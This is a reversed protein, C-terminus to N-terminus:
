REFPHEASGCFERGNDTWVATLRIGQTKYFPLICGRLLAVAGRAGGDVELLLFALSGYADLAHHLYLRGPGNCEGLYLTDQLLIQGPATAGLDRDRFAPDFREIKPPNKSKALFSGRRCAWGHGLWKPRRPARGPSV